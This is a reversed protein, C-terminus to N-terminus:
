GVFAFERTDLPSDALANGTAVMIMRMILLWSYVM